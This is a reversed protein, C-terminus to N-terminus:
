SISRTAPSTSSWSNSPCIGCCCGVEIWTSICSCEGNAVPVNLEAITSAGVVGDPELGIRQQYQRIACSVAEDYLLSDTAPADSLEGGRIMRARLALVRADSTGPTLAPGTPLTTWDGEAEVARYRALERKLREYMQHTPKLAALRDYVSDSAIANEIEQAVDTAPFTRAYNWQADFSEPDVKGFALHYGVRLLAETLLIDYQAKLTDTARPATVQAYLQRLLPLHYDAPTLGEYYSDALARLLQQQSEASTWAARFGRRSYFERLRDGWAISGGHIATVEPNMLADLEASIATAVPDADAAAAASCWSCACASFLLWLRGLTLLATRM